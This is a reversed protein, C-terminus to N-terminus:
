EPKFTGEEELPYSNNMWKPDINSLNEPTEQNIHKNKQYLHNLNNKIEEIKRM